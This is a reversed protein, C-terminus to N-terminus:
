RMPQHMMFASTGFYLGITSSYDTEYSGFLDGNQRATDIYYIYPATRCVKKASTGRAKERRPGQPQACRSPCGHQQKHHHESARHHSATLFVIFFSSKPRFIQVTLFFSRVKCASITKMMLLVLDIVMLFGERFSSSRM